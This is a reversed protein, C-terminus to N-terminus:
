VACFCPVSVDLYREVLQEKQKDGLPPQPPQPADVTGAATRRATGDLERIIDMITKPQFEPVPHRQMAKEYIKAPESPSYRSIKRSYFCFFTLGM